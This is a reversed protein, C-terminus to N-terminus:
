RDWELPLEKVGHADSYEPHLVLEDLPMAIRLDPFRERLRTYVIKLELRALHQGLCQHIGYGFALHGWASRDPDLTDPDPFAEPDRNAAAVAVHVREGARIAVGDIEIDELATRPLAGHHLVSFYRILEEIIDDAREPHEVLADWWRRNTLLAILGLPLLNSTTHHGATVLLEAMGVVEDENLDHEGLLDALLGSSGPDHRKNRVEERMADHRDQVADVLDQVRVDDREFLALATHWEDRETVGLLACIVDLSVPLAFSHAFDYPQPASGMRDIRSAVIGEIADAIRGVSRASMRGSLRRRYGTHIPPDMSLIDGPHDDREIDDEIADTTEDDLFPPRVVLVANGDPGTISFRQDGLIRRGLEYGTCLWGIEGDPFALRSLPGSERLRAFEEPPHFLTRRTPLRRAELRETM